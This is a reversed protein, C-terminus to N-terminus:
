NKFRLWRVNGEIAELALEERLSDRLDNILPDLPFSGGAAVDDALQKALEIQNKNGFLQIASLVDELKRSREKGEDRHSIECALTNFAEILYKLRLERKKSKLDRKSTFWHGVLWGIVAMGITVAIKLYDIDM